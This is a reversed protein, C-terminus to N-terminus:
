KQNSLSSSILGQYKACVTERRISCSRADREPKGCLAFGCGFPPAIIVVVHSSVEFRGKTTM